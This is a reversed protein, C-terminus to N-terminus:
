THSGVRKSPSIGDDVPEVLPVDFVRRFPLVRIRVQSPGKALAADVSEDGIDQNMVGVATPPSDVDQSLTHSLVLSL